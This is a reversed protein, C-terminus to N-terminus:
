ARIVLSLLLLLELRGFVMSVTLILQTFSDHYEGLLDTRFLAASNTLAGVSVQMAGDFDLGLVSLYSALMAAFTAFGVLYVWVSMMSNVTDRRGGLEFRMVANPQALRSFEHLTRALLSRMRFLKLGGTASIASGGVFGFFIILPSGLSLSEADSLMLGSTSIISLAESLGGMFGRGYFGVLIFSLCASLGLLLFTEGDKLIDSPHRFATILLGLNMSAFFLIVSLIGGTWSSSVAATSDYPVVKGSTVAGVSLTYAERFSLGDLLLLAGTFIATAILMAGIFLFLRLFSPFRLSVGITRAELKHIAPSARSSTALLILIGSITLTAGTLHLIGRWALLSASLPTDFPLLTAGTTTACSVSEFLALIFNGDCILLFPIAGLISICSWAAFLFVVTEKVGAKQKKTQAPILLIASAVISVMTVLIFLSAQQYRDNSFAWSACAAAPITLVALLRGLMNLVLLTKM